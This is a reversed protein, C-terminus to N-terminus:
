AAKGTRRPTARFPAAAAEAQRYTESDPLRGGYAAAEFAVLLPRLLAPSPAKSFLERVTLPSAEWALDDGLAAAV